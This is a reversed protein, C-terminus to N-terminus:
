IYHNISFKCSDNIKLKLAKQAIVSSDPNIAAAPM